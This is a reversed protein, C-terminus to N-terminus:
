KCANSEEEKLAIMKKITETSEEYPKKENNILYAKIGWTRLTWMIKKGQIFAPPDLMIFISTRRMRLIYDFCMHRMHTGLLCISPINTREWLSLGDIISEVIFVKKSKETPLGVISYQPTEGNHKITIYKPFSEPAKTRLQGGVAKRFQYHCPLYIYNASERIGYIIATPESIQRSSLFEKLWSSYSLDFQENQLNINERKTSERTNILEKIEDSLRGYAHCGFCYYTPSGTKSAYIAFSPHKEAHFPCLTMQILDSM